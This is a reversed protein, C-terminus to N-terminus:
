QIEKIGEVKKVKKALCELTDLNRKINAIDHLLYRSTAILNDKLLHSIAYIQSDYQLQKRLLGEIFQKAFDNFTNKFGLAHVGIEQLKDGYTEDWEKKWDDPIINLVEKAM